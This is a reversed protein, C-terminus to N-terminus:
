ALPTLEMSFLFSPRCVKWGPDGGTIMPWPEAAPLFSLWPGRPRWKSWVQSSSVKPALVQSCDSDAM